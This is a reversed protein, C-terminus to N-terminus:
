AKSQKQYKKIWVDVRSMVLSMNGIGDILGRRRADKANFMDGSLTERQFSKDGTLPRMGAVESQFADTYKNAVAKIPDFNGDIAARFEKNKLPANDGYFSMYNEKFHELVQKDITVVAGISGFSSEASAAIIEDTAAAAGYAASAVFHGFSIVPKNRESLGSVLMDKAIGEGGGSNIEMVIASVNKNAYAARLDGVISQIGRTSMQDEATMVGSLRLLAISGPPTLRENRLLGRDQVLEFSAGSPVLMAPQGSERRKSIGLEAFPVGADLLSLDSYYKALSQIGFNFEIEM